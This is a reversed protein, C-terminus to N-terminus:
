LHTGQNALLLYLIGLLVLNESINIGVVSEILCLYINFDITLLLWAISKYPRVPVPLDYIQLSYKIFEPSLVWIIVIVENEAFVLAEYTYSTNSDLNSFYFLLFPTKPGNIPCEFIM